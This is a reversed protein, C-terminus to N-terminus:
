QEQNGTMAFGQADVAACADDDRRVQQFTERDIALRRLADQHHLNFGHEELAGRAMRRECRQSAADLRRSLSSGLAPVMRAASLLLAM